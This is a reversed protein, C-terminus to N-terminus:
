KIKSESKAIIETMILLARECSLTIEFGGGIVFGKLGAIIVGIRNIIAKTICKKLLNSNNRYNKSM